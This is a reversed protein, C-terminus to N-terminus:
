RLKKLVEKVVRKPNKKYERGLRIAEERDLVGVAVLFQLFQPVNKWYKNLLGREFDLLYVRRGNVLVNTFPRQFEDKFVGLRDLCYAAVLIKRLYYNRLGEPIGEKQLKKFPIGELFRYVFFDEGRFTIQPVFKVGKRNLYELIDAEKQFTKILKEESPVKVAYKNGSETYTYIIGRYGEAFKELGKQSAFDKFRM